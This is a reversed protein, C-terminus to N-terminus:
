GFLPRLHDNLFIGNPDQERRLAVYDDFKPYASQLQERTMLHLKGWHARPAFPLLTNHVARLFPWYDTGPMGAVSITASKRQYFPSMWSDDAEIVRMFIPHNQEPHAESQRQVLAVAELVDEYPVAYELEYFLKAGEGIPASLVRYAPGRRAGLVDSWENEPIQDIENAQFYVTRNAMSEGDPSPLSYEQASTDSKLWMLGHNRNNAVENEWANAAVDWHPFQFKEELFFRPVINLEVELFVGMLGLGTQVGHLRPDDEGIEIVEGRGDVLRVWTLMSSFGRLGRGTGHTSTNLAGAIAQEWIIGQNSLSWGREWLEAALNKITTGARVRVRQKTEDISTIGTLKDLHLLVGQTTVLPSFSLSSGATRLTLNERLAVRVADAVGTESDPYFTLAPNSTFNQAWNSWAENEKPQDSMITLEAPNSVMTM